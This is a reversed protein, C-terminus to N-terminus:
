GYVRWSKHPSEQKRFGDTESASALVVKTARGNGIRSIRLDRIKGHTNLPNGSIWSPACPALRPAHAFQQKHFSFVSELGMGPKCSFRASGGSAAIQLHGSLVIFVLHANLRAEVAAASVGAELSLDCNPSAACVQCPSRPVPWTM